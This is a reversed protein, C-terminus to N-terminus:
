QSVESSLGRVLDFRQAPVVDGDVRMEGHQYLSQATKDGRALAALDADKLTVTTTAGEIANAVVRAKGDKVEVGFSVDPDTVRVTVLADGKGFAGPEAELKKALAAQITAAVPVKKAPMSPGALPSKSAGGSGGGALRAKMAAAVDEPPIKALFDLKQSAMVDGHIKMEGKFYLKQADVEGKVLALFSANSMEFTCAPKKTEGAQVGGGGELDLTWVEDPDTIKFQFVKGVKQTEPHDAVYKKMGGFVDGVTPGSASAPAAAGGGMGTGATDSSAARSAARARIDDKSLKALFDLKQSAMVDGHIKLEGKFYLKQAQAEGSVMALFNANSLEFVCDPKKTEGPQVGGGDKLDVTWVADPDTVKFQFVKGVKQTDPNAKVYDAMVAFVDEIGV